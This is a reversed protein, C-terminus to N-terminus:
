DDISVDRETESPPSGLEELDCVGEIPSCARWMPCLKFIVVLIGIFAARALVALGITSTVYVLANLGIADVAQYVGTFFVTPIVFRVAWRFRELQEAAAAVVDVRPREQGSPVAVFINWVAGGIWVAFALLHLMRVAIGAPELGCMAVEAIATALLTLLGFTLALLGVRSRFQSEVTRDALITWIVIGVTTLVLVALIAVEITAGFREVYRWLVVSGALVTAIVALSAIRDFREYMAECYERAGTGLDAPRVFLHKWLLGGVLTGLAVLFAWTAVASLIGSDGVLTTSVWSGLLSAAVIITLAVKPLLYRDFLAETTPSSASQTPNSM